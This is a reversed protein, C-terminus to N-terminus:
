PTPGVKSEYRDCVNLLIKLSRGQNRRGKRRYYKIIRPLGNRRIRSVHRMWKRRYDQIKDLFPTINLEKATKVNTKYDTWTYGATKRMYNIEAAIIRRADTAKIAWNESGCLLAPLARTNHLKIRTKKLTKQTRFM